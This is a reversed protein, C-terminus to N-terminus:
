SRNKQNQQKDFLYLLFLTVLMEKEKNDTVMMAEDIFETGKKFTKLLEDSLSKKYLNNYYKKQEQNLENIFKIIKNIDM